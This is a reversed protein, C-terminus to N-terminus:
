KDSIGGSHSGFCFHVHLLTFLTSSHVNSSFSLLSTPTANALFRYSAQVPVSRHGSINFVFACEVNIINLDCGCNWRSPM